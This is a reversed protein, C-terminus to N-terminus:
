EKQLERKKFVYQKSKFDQQVKLVRKTVMTVILTYSAQTYESVM